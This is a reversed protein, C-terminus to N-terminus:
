FIFEPILLEPLYGVTNNKTISGGTTGDINYAVYYLFMFWSINQFLIIKIISM